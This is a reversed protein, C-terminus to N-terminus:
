SRYQWSPQIVMVASGCHPPWPRGAPKASANLSISIEPLMAQFIYEPRVSLALRVMAGVAAVFQLLAVQRLHDLPSHDPVMHRVSACDPVSRPMRRVLASRRAAVARERDAAGLHEDGGALVVEGAVDDVQHQGARRVRRRAGLADAQEQHRLEQGVGVALDTGALPTLQPDISCLIPMWAEGVQTM